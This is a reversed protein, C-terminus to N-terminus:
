SSIEFNPDDMLYQLLVNVDELMAYFDFLEEETHNSEDIEYEVIYIPTSRYKGLLYGECEDFRLDFLRNGDCTFKVVNDTVDISVKGKWKNPYKMTVVATYIDFMSQDEWEIVQDPFFNYDSILYQVITDVEEQYRSNKEYEADDPVENFIAYVVVNKNELPLTGLLIETESDFLLSFLEVKDAITRFAVTYPEQSSVIAEVNEAFEETVALDCYPTSIVVTRQEVIDPTPETQETDVQTEEKSTDIPNESNVTQQAESSENASSPEANGCSAMTLLMLLIMAIAFIRKM